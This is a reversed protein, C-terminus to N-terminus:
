DGHRRERELISVLEQPSVFRLAGCIRRVDAPRGAVRSLITKRDLTLFYDCKAQIAHVIHEADDPDFIQTLEGYLPHKWDGAIPTANIPAGGIAGNYYVPVSRVKRYAAAAFELMAGRTTDTTQLIESRAKESTVFNLAGFRVLKRLAEAVVVPVTPDPIRSIISTDLYVTKDCVAPM